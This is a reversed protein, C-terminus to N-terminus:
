AADEVAEPAANAAAGPARTPEEAADAAPAPAAAPPTDSPGLDVLPQPLRESEPPENAPAPPRALYLWVFVGLVATWFAAVGGRVWPRDLRKNRQLLFLIGCLSHVFVVPVFALPLWQVHWARATAPAIWGQAVFWKATLFGTLLTAPTLVLLLRATHRLLRITRNM